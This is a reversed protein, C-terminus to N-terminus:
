LKLNDLQEVLTGFSPRQDPEYNYCPLIIRALAQPTSPPLTPKLEETVVAISAQIMDMDPYPEKRTLIEWCTVGFSWVDSKESYKKKSLAEPSMWKIPGIVGKSYVASTNKESVRSLGFDSVKGELTNSLLINRAALDRHVINELTLHYMGAAIGKMIRLKQTISLQVASGLYSCLDGKELYETIICLPEVVIGLLLVVNPHKKMKCMLTAEDVFSQVDEISADERKIEKCAVLKGRWKCKYVV